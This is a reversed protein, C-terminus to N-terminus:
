KICLDKKLVELPRTKGATHNKRAQRMKTLFADDRSFFFDEMEDGMKEFARAAKSIKDFLSVPIEVTKPM